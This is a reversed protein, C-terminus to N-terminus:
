YVWLDHEIDLLKNRIKDAELLVKIGQNEDGIFKDILRYGQVNNEKYIYSSFARSDFVDSWSLPSADNHDNFVKEKSLIKRAEPYYVWFLPLEYKELGTEKDLEIKIPAIGLIKCELRSAEKDFYWIEKLRFTKILSLDLETTVPTSTSILKEPDYVEVTDIKLKIKEIKDKSLINKFNDEEFFKVEGRLAADLLINIFPKEFELFKQNMKERTDLVRWIRKEWVIDAERMNDYSLVRQEKIAERRIVGDLYENKDHQIEAIELEKVVEQSVLPFSFLIIFTLVNFVKLKHM